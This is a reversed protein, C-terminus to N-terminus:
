TWCYGEDCVGDGFEGDTFLPTQAEAVADSLRRNFRTLWVPDKGLMVRRENLTDELQQSRAFLEPKDRRQEAWTAPRHFPCFFCSSKGPVPLGADRIVEMCGARDLSLGYGDILPYVPREYPEVKKNGVRHVEDTSIGIMVTAPNDASAGNAKLWKGVVKIKFDHTCSRTGPAGNSMRVPIPLSRSGEKMLRGWLTEPTGDRRVRHLEHVPLGREAAWPIAVERVYRLTSPEESDDGVNSFLAADVRGLRGTAALVVLATSQVGGGYSITVLGDTMPQEERVVM